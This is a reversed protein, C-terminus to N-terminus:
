DNFASMGIERPADGRHHDHQKTVVTTTCVGACQMWASLGCAYRLNGGNAAHLLAHLYEIHNHLECHIILIM